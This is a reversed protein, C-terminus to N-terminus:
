TPAPRVLPGRLTEVVLLEGSAAMDRIHWRIDSSSKKLKKKELDKQLLEKYKTRKIIALVEKRGELV